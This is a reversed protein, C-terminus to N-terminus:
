NQVIDVECNGKPPDCSVRGSASHNHIELFGFQDDKGGVYFEINGSFEAGVTVGAVEKGVTVKAGLTVKFPDGGDEEYFYIWYNTAYRDMDWLWLDTHFVIGIYPWLFIRDKQGLDEKPFDFQGNNQDFRVIKVFFEAKSRGWSIDKWCDNDMYINKLREHGYGKRWGARASVEASFTSWAGDKFARIIFSYKQGNILNQFIRIPPIGAQQEVYQWDNNNEKYGISYKTAGEIDTWTIELANGITTAPLAKTIKPAPVNSISKLNIDGYLENEDFINLMANEQVDSEEFFSDPMVQIFSPYEIVGQSKLLTSANSYAEDATIFRDESDLVYGEVTVKLLGNDDVRESLGITIIPDEIDSFIPIWGEKGNMDFTAIGDHTSKHWDVPFYAVEPNYDGPIWDAYQFPICINLNPIAQLIDDFDKKSIRNWKSSEFNNYVLGSVTQTSGSALKIENDKIFRYLVDYDYDFQKNTEHRLLKQFEPESTTLAIAKAFDAILTNRVELDVISSIDINVQNDDNIDEKCNALFITLILLLILHLKKM